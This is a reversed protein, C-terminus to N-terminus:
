EKNKPISIEFIRNRGGTDPDPIEGVQVGGCRKLTKESAVNEEDCTVIVPMVGQEQLLKVAMSLMEVAYGKRRESPRIGYGCHGNIRLNEGREQPRISVAGLLKGDERLLFFLQQGQKEEEALWREWNRRSLNSNQLCPCRRLAGPHIEEGSAKWEWLLEACQESYEWVPHVLKEKM